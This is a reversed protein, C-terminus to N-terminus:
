SNYKKCGNNWNDNFVWADLGLIIVDPRYSLNELFNKYESYNGAVAGGCNYFNDKFYISNFQMVRSTGLAIVAKKYYNANQLKYYITQDSYGLGFLSTPNSQQLEICANVDTFEHTIFGAYYFPGVSIIIFCVLPLIFLIINCLFKKM